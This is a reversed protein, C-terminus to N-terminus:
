TTVEWLASALDMMDLWIIEVVATADLRVGPLCPDPVASTRNESGRHGEGRRVTPRDRHVSGTRNNLSRRCPAADAQQARRQAVVGVHSFLQQEAANGDTLLELKSPEKEKQTSPSAGSVAEM